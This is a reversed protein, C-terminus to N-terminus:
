KGTVPVTGSDDLVSKEVTDGYILIVVQANARYSAKGSAIAETIAQGAAADIKNLKATRGSKNSAPVPLPEKDEITGLSTGNLYVKLNVQSLLYSVVNTNDVQWSVLVTGDASREIKTLQMNLGNAIIESSNTCGSFLLTLLALLFLPTIFRKMVASHTGGNV